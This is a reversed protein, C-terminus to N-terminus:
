SIVNCLDEELYPQMRLNQTSIFKSLVSNLGNNCTMPSRLNRWFYSKHPSIPTVDTSLFISEQGWGLDM